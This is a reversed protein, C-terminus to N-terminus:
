PRSSVSSPMRSNRLMLATHTDDPRPQRPGGPRRRVLRHRDHGRARRHRLAGEGQFTGVHQLVLTGEHGGVTGTIREIGVFSATEDPAYAMVWVTASTGTVDGRYSRQVEARTLRAAGEAEDFPNEQWDKVEFTADLGAM